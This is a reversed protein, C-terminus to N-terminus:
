ADQPKCKELCGNADVLYESGDRDILVGKEKKSAGSADRGDTAVYYCKYTPYIAGERTYLERPVEDMKGGVLEIHRVTINLGAM